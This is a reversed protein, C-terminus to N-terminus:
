VMVRVYCQKTVWCLAIMVKPLAYCLPGAPAGCIIGAPSMNRPITVGMRSPHSRCTGASTTASGTHTYIDKIPLNEIFVWLNAPKKFSLHLGEGMRPKLRQPGAHVPSNVQPNKWLNGTPVKQMGSGTGDGLKQYSCTCCHFFLQIIEALRRPRFVMPPFCQLCPFTKLLSFSQYFRVLWGSETLIKVLYFRYSIICERLTKNSIKSRSGSFVLSVRYCYSFETSVNHSTQIKDCKEDLSFGLSFNSVKLIRRFNEKTSFKTIDGTFFIKEFKQNWSIDKFLSSEKLKKGWLNIVFHPM